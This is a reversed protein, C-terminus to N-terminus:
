TNRLRLLMITLRKSCKKQTPRKSDGWRMLAKVFQRIVQIARTLLLITPLKQIPRALPTSQVETCLLFNLLMYIWTVLLRIRATITYLHVINTRWADERSSWDASRFFNETNHAFIIVGLPKIFSINIKLLACHWCSVQLISIWNNTNFFTKSIRPGLVIYM